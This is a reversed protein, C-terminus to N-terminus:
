ASRTFETFAAIQAEDRSMGQEENQATLRIIERYDEPIIKKFRPLWTEFDELIMRGKGSGTLAVHKEILGRLQEKDHKNEVKEM